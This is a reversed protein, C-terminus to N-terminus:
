TSAEVEERKCRKLAQAETENWYVPYYRVLRVTDEIINSAAREAPHKEHMRKFGEPDKKAMRVAQWFTDYVFEEISMGAITCANDLLIKGTESFEFEYIWYKIEYDRDDATEAIRDYLDKTMCAYRRDGDAVGEVPDGFREPFDVDNIHKGLEEATIVAIVKEESM